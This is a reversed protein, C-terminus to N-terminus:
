AVDHLALGLRRVGEDIAPEALAAYGLLLASQPPSSTYYPRAPYVGVGRLAAARAAARDDVDRLPLM